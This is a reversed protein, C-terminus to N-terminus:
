EDDTEYNSSVEDLSDKVKEVTTVEEPELPEGHELVKALKSIAGRVYSVATPPVKDPEDVKGELYAMAMKLQSKTPKKENKSKWETLRRAANLEKISAQPPIKEYISEFFEANNAANSLWSRDVGIAKALATLTQAKNEPKPEGAKRIPCLHNALIGLNLHTRDLDQKLDTGVSVGIDWSDIDSTKITIEM